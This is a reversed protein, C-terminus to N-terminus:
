MRLLVFVIEATSPEEVSVDLYTHVYDVDIPVNNSFYKKNNRSNYHMNDTIACYSRRYRLMAKSLMMSFSRGTTKGIYREDASSSCRVDVKRVSLKQICTPIETQM